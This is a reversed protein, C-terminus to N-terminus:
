VQPLQNLRFAKRGSTDRINGIKPFRKFLGFIKKADEEDGRLWRLKDKTEEKWKSRNNNNCKYVAAKFIETDKSPTGDQAMEFYTDVLKTCSQISYGKKVEDMLAKGAQSLDGANMGQLKVEESTKPPVVVSGGAPTPTVTPKSGGRKFVNYGQPFAQTFYKSYKTLFTNQTTTLDEKTYTGDDVEVETPVPTAFWGQKGIIELVKNQNADLKVEAPKSLEECTWNKQIGTSANAVKMNAFFFYTNGNSGKGFIVDKGSKTKRLPQTPDATFWTYKDICGSELARQLKDKDAVVKTEKKPQEVTKPPSPPETPTTTKTTGDANYPSGPDGPQIDDPGLGSAQEKIFGHMMLIDEKQKNDIIFKKM